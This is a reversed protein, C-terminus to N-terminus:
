QNVFMEANQRTRVGIEDMVSVVSTVHPSGPERLMSSGPTGSAEYRRHPKPQIALRRVPGVKGVFSPSV